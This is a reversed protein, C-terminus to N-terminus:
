AVVDKAQPVREAMAGAPPDKTATLAAPGSRVFGWVGASAMAVMIWGSFLDFATARSFVAHSWAWMGVGLASLGLVALPARQPPFGMSKILQTLACVAITIQGLAQADLGSIAAAPDM